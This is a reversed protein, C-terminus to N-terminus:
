DSKLFYTTKSADRDVSFRWHPAKPPQKRGQRNVPAKWLAPAWVMALAAGDGTAAYGTLYNLEAASRSGASPKLSAGTEGDSEGQMWSWDFDPGETTWSQCMLPLFPFLHLLDFM